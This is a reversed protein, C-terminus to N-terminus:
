RDSKWIGSSLNINLLESTCTIDMHLNVEIICIVEPYSKCLKDSMSSLFVHTSLVKLLYYVTIKFPRNTAKIFSIFSVFSIPWEDEAYSLQLLAIFRAVLNFM